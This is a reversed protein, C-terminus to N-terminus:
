ITKHYVVINQVEISCNTKPYNMPFVVGQLLYKTTYYSMKYYFIYIKHYSQLLISSNTITYGISNGCKTTFYCMKYYFLMKEHYVVINQLLINCNATPYNIPIVVYQPSFLVNNYFIM